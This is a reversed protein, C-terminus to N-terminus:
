KSAKCPNSVKGGFKDCQIIMNNYCVCSACHCGATIEAIEFGICVCSCLVDHKMTHGASERNSANAIYIPCEGVSM